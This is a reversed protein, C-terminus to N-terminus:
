SPYPPLKLRRSKKSRDAHIVITLYMIKLVTETFRHFQCDRL